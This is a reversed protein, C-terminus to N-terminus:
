RVGRFHVHHDIGFFGPSDGSIDLYRIPNSGEFIGRLHSPNTQIRLSYFQWTWFNGNLSGNHPNEGTMLPGVFIHLDLWFNVFTWPEHVGM